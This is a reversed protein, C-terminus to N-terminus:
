LASAKSSLEIKQEEEKIIGEQILRLKLENASAGTLVGTRKEKRKEKPINTTQTRSFKGEIDGDKDEGIKAKDQSTRESISISGDETDFYGTVLIDGTKENYKFGNVTFNSTSLDEGTTGGSISKMEAFPIVVSGDNITTMKVKSSGRDMFGLNKMEAENEPTLMFGQRLDVETTGTVKISEKEEGKADRLNKRRTELGRADKKKTLELELRNTVENIMKETLSEQLAEVEDEGFFMKDKENMTLSWLDNQLSPDLALSKAREEIESIMGDTMFKEKETEYGLGDTYTEEIRPKLDDSISKLVSEYQASKPPNELWQRIEKIGVRKGDVLAYMKGKDDVDLDDVRGKLANDFFMITEDSIGDSILGESSMNLFKEAGASLLKVDENFSALERNFSSALGQMEARSIEGSQMKKYYEYQKDKMKDVGKYIFTDVNYEGTSEGEPTQLSALIDNKDKAIAEDMALKQRNLRSQEQQANRMMSAVDFGATDTTAFSGTKGIAM